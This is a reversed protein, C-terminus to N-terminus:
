RAPTRRHDRRRIVALLMHKTHEWNLFVQEWTLRTVTFGRARLRLDRSRDLHYQTETGHFTRSDCEIVWSEGVLLDVRGVDPIWVQPRVPIRLSELWWRVKTETGSEARPDVRHLARRLREPWGAILAYADEQLLRGTNMASELLIATDVTDLCRAAHSLVLPLDPVPDHDPWSRLVPAHLIPAVTPAAGFASRQQSRIPSLRVSDCDRSRPSCRPRFAHAGSISPTWLGHLAAGDVCTPRLNAALFPEIRPDAAPGILWQGVCRVTGSRRAAALRQEDIGSRKVAHVNLIGPLQM